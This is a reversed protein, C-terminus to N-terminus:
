QMSAEVPAEIAELLGQMVGTLTHVLMGESSLKMRHLCVPEVVQKVDDPHEGEYIFNLRGFYPSYMQKQLQEAETAKALGLRDIMALSKQHDLFEYKDIDSKYEILYQQLKKFDTDKETMQEVARQYAEELQAVVKDLFMIEQQNM